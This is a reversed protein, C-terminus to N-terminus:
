EHPTDWDQAPFTELLQKFETRSKQAFAFLADIDASPITSADTLPQSLLREVYRKEASFIHKVLDGITHFRGDGNPGASIELVQSGHKGFFALWSGREWDTYEVLNELSLSVSTKASPTMKIRRRATKFIVPSIAYNEIAILKTSTDAGSKGQARLRLK